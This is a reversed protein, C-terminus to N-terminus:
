RTEPLLTATSTSALSDAKTLKIEVTCITDNHHLGHCVLLVEVPYFGHKVGLGCSNWGFSIALGGQKIKPAIMNYVRGYFNYSTDKYTAKVGKDKYHESIQRYSYPPDVLIGDYSDPLLSCFEVAEMHFLAPTKSDMDNTIQAPSNYGAFPDVWTGGYKMYKDLLARIPKITFTDKSPPAKVRHIVPEYNFM